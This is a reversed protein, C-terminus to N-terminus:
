GSVGARAVVIGILASLTPDEEFIDGVDVQVDLEDEIRSVIRVAAISEGSLEFFTADELESVSEGLVESWIVSVKQEIVSVSTGEIVDGSM